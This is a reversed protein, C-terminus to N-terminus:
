RDSKAALMHLHRIREDTAPHSSLFGGAGAGPHSKAVAELADALLQPSMGNFRLLAAGYDDAERELTQSYKAQLMAAPAAALLQSFDGVYVTLFAGALSSQLLLQMSHHGHAHGLEHALIALIQQDDAVKTVLDDLLIITGDPLTFANAGLQPSARFLLVSNVRGGEPLRLAHFRDSLEQRRAASITSPRFIGHDLIKLTQETLTAAVTPPLHRAGERAVWPLLWLYAAVALAVCGACALLVFKTRRQVRDVWGDTHGAAALLQDLGDLDRIECFTGDPLRLRRPARGLREDVTVEAFPVRLDIDEGSVLLDRGAVSISVARVRTSRGDFYSAQLM